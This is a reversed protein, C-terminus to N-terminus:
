VDESGEPPYGEPYEDGGEWADGRAKDHEKWIVQEPQLKGEKIKKEAIWTSVWVYEKGDTDKGVQAIQTAPLFLEGVDQGDELLTYVKARGQTRLFRAEIKVPPIEPQRTKYEKNVKIDANALAAIEENMAAAGQAPTRNKADEIESGRVVEAGLTDAVDKVLAQADAKKQAAKQKEIREREKPTDDWRPQEVKPKTERPASRHTQEGKFVSIGVGVMSLAKTLGDTVASKRADGDTMGKRVVGMGYAPIKESWLPTFEKILNEAFTYAYQVWVLAVRNDPATTDIEIHDYKWGFGCMGFVESMRETQYAPSISSLDGGGGERRKIAKQPFDARLRDFAESLTLGTLTKFENEM